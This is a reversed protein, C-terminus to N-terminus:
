NINNIKSSLTKMLDFIKRVNNKSLKPYTNKYVNYNIGAQECIYRMSFFDRHEIIFNLKEEYNVCEKEEIMKAQYDPKDSVQVNKSQELIKGESIIYIDYYEYLTRNERIKENWFVEAEFKIDFSYKKEEVLKLYTGHAKKYLKVVVEYM